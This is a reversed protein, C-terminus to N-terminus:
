EVLRLKTEPSVRSYGAAQAIVERLGEVSLQDVERGDLISQGPALLGLDQAVRQATLRQDGTLMVVRIGAAHFASITEKVGPAPPDSMGVFAVWTLGHLEREDLRTVQRTGLALVRLGRAALERNLELLRARETEGIERPGAPGLMETSLQIIRAPAGKVLAVLGAPTRHFTAMLMRESSFPVEGLEPWVSLLSRRDLGSKRALVALAAETPDGLATWIEDVRRVDGRGTLACIRLATALREDTLPDLPTGGVLFQGEPTYGSGSVEVEREEFRIANATMEGATLTGTKDTCIITTSGLTEVVPLHRILAKRHAMRRVGVAMAITAVIPLGEPVAAVALALATQLLERLPAGQLMGLATVLGAVGLAVWILRRTLVDLRRELPSQQERVGSVLTGIRGVETAMGTAVVAARGRGAVVTTAKYLMTIREALPAGPPLYADARKDTPMSEGTLPAEMTRLEVSELLRADAPVSSGAEVEIVDGPVLESANLELLRGGRFVRARTVELALLSEVARHARLEMVFSIMLNLALVALIAVADPLDGLVYAAAAALLLLVAMVSRFQRLLIVWASVSRVVQFVNPGHRALRTAAERETLGAKTSDLRALAADAPLAHWDVPQNM